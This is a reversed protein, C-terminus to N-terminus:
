HKCPHNLEDLINHQLAFLVAYCDWERVRCQNSVLFALRELNVEGDAIAHAYFKKPAAVDQPNAREIAKINVM